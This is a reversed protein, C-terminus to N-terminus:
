QVTVVPGIPSQVGNVTAQLSQDGSGINGPVTLNFQYLGAATIGAFVVNAKLGGITINVPSTTPAVGSFIRGAPVPPTTAGFGVGFLVLTEGSKVARTSFSFSGSPGVLDYTGGGYAGTGSPTLIEGAAHKADGLLSFSPAQAALTVTSTATGSPSNVVVSVMGLTLDDPVQLNIQTSSVSWLYAPKNDILVSVGGLSTPFDGKWVSSASALNSGYLSVWSGSQIVPVSSYIPVIGNSNITPGSGPTLLRVRNNISDGIYVKGSGDVAIGSVGDLQASTGPGNDGSFGDTGTGAITSIIGNSVKRVRTGYTFDVIYLNGTLDTAIVRPSLIANTALGNDGLGNQVAGGGAVTTIIGNSIKRVRGNGTGNGPDAVYINGLRDLCIGGPDLFQANVALGNDGSYGSTGTGAITTIVGNAIKRVRQDATFYVSGAGDVAIGAAASLTASIAPGNDGGFTPYFVNGALTTVAGNAVKLIRNFDGVYIAGDNAVTIPGPDDLGTPPFSGAGTNLAAISIVGNSIKRILGDVVFVNGAPDVAVGSINGTNLQANIAPGNNGILGAMGNGAVTTIIGNAVKRIRQNTFDAIYLIGTADVAVSSPGYLSASTASGGDGSFGGVGNGAVTTITGNSVKRVKNSVNSDAIFLNGNLDVTIGSDYIQASTAPGNDGSFGCMGNGAITNIVGNTIKRIRCSGDAIFLSGAQDVFIKGVGDFDASIAPGNDGSFSPTDSGALTTIVGNSVKRIKNLDSIYLNGSSDVAVATPGYLQASTAPGLDGASGVTGNGAVTTIVGNSVKRIRFNLTDAIYINGSADVAIGNVEKLQAAVASGSDGSFGPTGNGAVLTLINSTADLRFVSNWSSFFVNGSNDVVVSRPTIDGVTTGAVNTPLAGGAFTTITYNQACIDLCGVSCAIAAFALRM